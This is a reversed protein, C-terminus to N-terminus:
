ARGRCKVRVEATAAKTVTAMAPQCVADKVLATVTYSGPRLGVFTAFDLPAATAYKPSGGAGALKVAAAVYGTAASGPGRIHTSWVTVQVAGTSLMTAADQSYTLVGTTDAIRLRSGTVVWHSRGALVASVATGVAEQEPTEGAATSLGQKGDLTGAGIKFSWATDNGGDNTTGSTADTFSLTPPPAVLPVAVRAGESWSVLYWTTAFLVAAAAPMHTTASSAVAGSAGSTTPVVAAHPSPRCGALPGLLMLAAAGALLRRMRM